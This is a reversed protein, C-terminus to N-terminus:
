WELAWRLLNMSEAGKLMYENEENAKGWWPSQLKFKYGIVIKLHYSINAFIIHSSWM